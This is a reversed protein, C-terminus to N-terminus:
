AVGAWPSLAGCIRGGDLSGIPLLNFLNIMYGFDALAFLLQSDMAHAAGSISIAGVTGLVPGGFAIMAEQHADRPLKEMSVVAGMFPVFVMPSFPIGYRMMVLAHGSEHVLLQGVMGAAYPLGFITSYAGVSLLMSGLSAFKTLKLAGFIYKGKGALLLAGSGVTALTGGIRGGRPPRNPNSAFPRSPPTSATLCAGWPGHAVRFSTIRSEHLVHNTGIRIKLRRSLLFQQSHLFRAAM